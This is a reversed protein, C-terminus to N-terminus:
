PNIMADEDPILYHMGRRLFDGTIDAFAEARDEQIAHAADYVYQLSCNPLLHRYTRGNEPPIIGDKTGFLVLTRVPCQRMQEAVKEDDPPAAVLVRDVVPWSRAQVQPDPAPWAPPREPHCRFARVLEAAPIGAIPRAGARFQAPAELVLSIVREPYLLALHLAVAGGLSTGLLHYRQHGIADAVAAVTEALDDLSQSRHNPEAGWGPLEVAVVRFDRALLGLAPTLRIGGAGDLVILPEGVGAQYYRVDFGDAEVSRETFMTATGAVAITRTM